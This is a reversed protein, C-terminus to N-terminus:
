DQNDRSLDSSNPHLDALDALDAQGGFGGGLRCAQVLAPTVRRGLRRGLSDTQLTTLLGVAEWRRAVDNVADRGVEFGKDKVAETIERIKFWGDVEIATQVLARELETLLPIPASAAQGQGPLEVQFAQTEILSGDWVLLLRGKTKPLREAGTRGLIIRSDEVSVVPLAIRTVLNARLQGRVVEADPRQIGVVPHVGYAGARRVLTILAGEADPPLDALEDLILVLPRLDDKGLKIYDPLNTVGAQTFLRQREIVEQQVRVLVASLDTAVTTFPHGGYRSFEVGGKGDWLILEAQGGHQLAQVWAHLTYTKGMRRAGGILVSDMEVINLWLPGKRTLGIPIHLPSPQQDLNLQISALQTTPRENEQEPWYAVQLYVKGHRWVQAVRRGQLNATLRQVFPTPLTRGGVLHPNFVMVVRDPFRLSIYFAPKGQPPNGFQQRFLRMTRDGIMRALQFRPDIQITNPNTHPNNM